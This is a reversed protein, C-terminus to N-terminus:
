RKKGAVADFEADRGEKRTVTYRSGAALRTWGSTTGDRWRVRIDASEGSGLGFHLDGVGGGAHGGGIAVFRKQTRGGSKLTVTAGVAQTNPAPQRLMISVWNRDPDGCSRNRFLSAPQNRNVVVIDLCGDRDFDAIAAGRGATNLAIGTNGSAEAFRGDGKGLLITDPDFAAFQKMTDVNGKVILLDDFGDNNFDAFGNHWSTSPRPDGGTHPRQSAAGRTWAVEGFRPVPPEKAELTYLKNEAMNTVAIEPLGDQDIDRAALGMGWIKADKWGDAAAYLRPAAGFVSWLQEGGDADQYERDNAIRLDAEGTNRWDVFLMSLACHGPALPSADEYLVGDPGSSSPRLLTNTECNGTKELPRDRDVYNGVILTPFDAGRAWAAAFATSWKGSGAIAAGKEAVTFRCNGTNELLANRGFRLLFLDLDADNDFDIAYVGAVNKLVDHGSGTLPRVAAFRIQGAKKTRNRFLQASGTGGALFLDADGDSDCDFAAAGGGVVFDANGGFVHSLGASSAQESFIVPAPGAFAPSVPLFAALLITFLRQM